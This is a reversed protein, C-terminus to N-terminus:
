PKQTKDPPYIGPHTALAFAAVSSMASMEGTRIANQLEERTMLLIEMEELDGGDPESIKRIDRATFLSMTACGYSASVAFRGLSRWDASVYGTEEQLERQAALLPDEGSKLGGAPLVLTIHGIGHRYQREVLIKGDPTQAVIVAFDNLQVQHYDEIVRGDPLRVKQKSIRIWPPAQFVERSDLVEWPKLERQKM